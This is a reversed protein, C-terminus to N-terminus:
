VMQFNMNITEYICSNSLYTNNKFFSINRQIEDNASRFPQPVGLEAVVDLMGFVVADVFTLAALVTLAAFSELESFTDCFVTDLVVTVVSSLLVVEVLELGVGTVDSNCANCITVSKYM